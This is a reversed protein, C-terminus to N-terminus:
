VYDKERIRMRFVRGFNIVVREEVFGHDVEGGLIEKLSTVQLGRIGCPYIFQFPTLDNNVNLAFGHTTVGKRVRVGLSAIKKRGVWLGILPLMRNSEIGLDKLALIIVEELLRMYNGVSLVRHRLCLVPYGVLQGPGHYTIDGGRDTFYLRIGKRKLEEEKVLLNEKGGKRGLTITPPHQLILLTDDLREEKRAKRLGSQLHYAQEYEILGLKLVWLSPEFFKEM